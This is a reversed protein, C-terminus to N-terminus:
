RRPSASGPIRRDNGEVYAMAAKMSLAELHKPNFELMREISRGQRRGEQGPLDAVQALVLQAGADNPNLKLARQAFMVAQPPNEDALAKAM